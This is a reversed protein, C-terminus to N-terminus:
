AKNEEQIIKRPKRRPTAKFTGYVPDVAKAFLPNDKRLEGKDGCRFRIWNEAQAPRTDGPVDIDFEIHYRKRKESMPKGGKTQFDSNLTKQLADKERAKQRGAAEDVLATIGAKALLPERSKQTAAKKNDQPEFAQTASWLRIRAGTKGNTPCAKNRARHDRFERGCNKCLEPGKFFEKM